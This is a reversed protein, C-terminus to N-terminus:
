SQFPSHVPSSQVRNVLGVTAICVAFMVLAVVDCSAELEAESLKKRDCVTRKKTCHTVFLQPLAQSHGSIHGMFIILSLAQAPCVPELTEVFAEFHKQSMM